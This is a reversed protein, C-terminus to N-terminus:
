AILKLSKHPAFKTVYCGPIYPPRVGRAGGLPVTEMCEERIAELAFADEYLGNWAIKITCNEMNAEVYREWLV